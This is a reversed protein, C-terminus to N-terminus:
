RPRASPDRLRPMIAVDDIYGPTALIGVVSDALVDLPMMTAAPFLNRDVWVRLTRALREPDWGHAFGTGSTNGVVVRTFDLDPHEM